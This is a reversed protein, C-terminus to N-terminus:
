LKLASVYDGDPLIENKSLPIEVSPQILPAKYYKNKEQNTKLHYLPQYQLNEVVESTILASFPNRTESFYSTIKFDHIAANDKLINPNVKGEILFNYTLDYYFKKIDKKTIIHATTFTITCSTDPLLANIQEAVSPDIMHDKYSTILCIPIKRYLEINKRVKDITDFNNFDTKFFYNLVDLSCETITTINTNLEENEVGFTKLLSNISKLAWITLNPNASIFALLGRMILSNAAEPSYAFAMPAIFHTVFDTQDQISGSFLKEEATQMQPLTPSNAYHTRLYHRAYDKNGVGNAGVISLIKQLYIDSSPDLWKPRCLPFNMAVMHGFSRGCVVLNLKKINLREKITEVLSADMETFHEVTYEVQPNKAKDSKGCGLPDYLIFHPLPRGETRAKIIQAYVFYKYMNLGYGPGGPIVLIYPQGDNASGPTGVVKCNINFNHIRLMEDLLYPIKEKPM